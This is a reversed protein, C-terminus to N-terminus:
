LHGRMDHRWTHLTCFETLYTSASLRNALVRPRATHIYQAPPVHYTWTTSVGRKRVTKKDKPKSYGSENAPPLFCVSGRKPAARRSAHKDVAPRSSSWMCRSVQQGGDASLLGARTQITFGTSHAERAGAAVTSPPWDCALMRCLNAHMRMPRSRIQPLSGARLVYRWACVTHLYRRALQGFLHPPPPVPSPFPSPAPHHPSQLGRIPTVAADM